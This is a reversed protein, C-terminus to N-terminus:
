LIKVKVAAGSKICNSEEDLVLIANAQSLPRLMASNQPMIPTVYCKGNRNSLIASMFYIKGKEKRIDRGLIASAYIDRYDKGMAKLIAPAIFETFCIFASVPNGPVGFVPKNKVKGFVIPKGPKIAVKWFLRKIGLNDLAAKVYDYDGVSVGGSILLMDSRLGQKIKRGIEKLDDKVVGLNVPEVGLATVLSSLIYSNADRIKGPRLKEGPRILEEGTALISVKIKPYALVEKFGLAALMGIRQPTVVAGKKLVVEGTKVDEGKQRVNEGHKAAKFIGVYKSDSKTNEVMVVSDAGQPLPAGTMIRIAEGHKLIKKSYHGAPLDGVVRLKVSMEESASKTDKSKVAFGDMASNSFPPLSNAAKIDRVLVLDLAGSLPVRQPKKIKINKLIIGKAEAATIM